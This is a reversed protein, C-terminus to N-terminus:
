ILSEYKEIWESVREPIAIKQKKLETVLLFFCEPLARFLKEKELKNTKEIPWFTTGTWRYRGPILDCGEPVTVAGESIGTPNKDFGILLGKKDLIAIWQNSM